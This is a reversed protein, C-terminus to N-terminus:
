TTHNGSICPSSENEENFIEGKDNQNDDKILVDGFSSKVNMESIQRLDAITDEAIKTTVLEPLHVTSRQRRLIFFSVLGLISGLILITGGFIFSSTYTGTKSLLLGATPPGLLLGVGAFMNEIGHAASLFELGVMDLTIPTMLSNPAGTCLGVLCSFAVDAGVHRSYVPFCLTVLGCCALTTVHVILSNARKVSMSLSSLFRGITNSVGFSTMVVTIKFSDAGLLSLYNPLHLLCIGLMLNWTITSFLFFVFPVNTVINKNLLNAFLSSLKNSLTKKISQDGTKMETWARSRLLKLETISPKCISSVIFLHSTFGSLILFTGQLGYVDLFFLALPSSVFMGVGIVAASMAIVLNRREQFYYGLMVVYPTGIFANGIGAMLGYTLILLDLDNVFASLFFSLSVLCAGTVMAVRCSFMDMVISVLPSLICMLGSNLSGIVSTKAENGPYRQLVAVYIIGNMYLTTSVIVIGCYVAVLM